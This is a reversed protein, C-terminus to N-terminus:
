DVLSRSIRRSVVSRCIPCKDLRQSCVACCYYHGCPVFVTEKPSSLCVACETEEANEYITLHNDINQQVITIESLKLVSYYFRSGSKTHLNVFASDVHYMAGEKRISRPFQCNAHKIYGDSLIKVRLKSKEKVCTLVVIM